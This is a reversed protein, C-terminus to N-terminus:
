YRRWEDREKLETVSIVRSKTRPFWLLREKQDNLGWVTLLKDRFGHYSVERVYYLGDPVKEDNKVEIYHDALEPWLDANPMELYFFENGLITSRFDRECEAKARAIHHDFYAAVEDDRREIARVQKRMVKMARRNSRWWSHKKM